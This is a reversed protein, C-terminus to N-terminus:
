NTSHQDRVGLTRPDIGAALPSEDNSPSSPRGDDFSHALRWVDAWTDPSELVYIIPVTITCSNRTFSHYLTKVRNSSDQRAIFCMTKCSYISPMTHSVFCTCVYSRYGPNVCLGSFYLSDVQPSTYNEYLRRGLILNQLLPPKSPPHASDFNSREHFSRPLLLMCQLKKHSLELLLLILSPLELSSHASRTSVSTMFIILSFRPLFM